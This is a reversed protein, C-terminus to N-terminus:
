VGVQPSKTHGALQRDLETRLDACLRGTRTWEILLQAVHRLKIGTHRKKGLEVYPQQEKSSTSRDPPAAPPPRTDVSM